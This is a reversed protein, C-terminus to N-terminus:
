GFRSKIFDWLHWHRGPCRPWPAFGLTKTSRDVWLGFPEANPYEVTLVVGQGCADVTTFQVANVNKYQGNPGWDELFKQFSYDRCPNQPTCGWLQYARQYNHARLAELFTKAAREERFNRFFLFLALGIVAAAASVLIIWKWRKERKADQVGYTDLYGAV